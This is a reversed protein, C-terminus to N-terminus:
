EPPFTGGEVILQADEVLSRLGDGRQLVDKSDKV